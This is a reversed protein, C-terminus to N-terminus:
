HEEHSPIPENPILHAIIIALIGFIIGVITAFPLNLDNGGGLSMLVFNCMQVLIFAWVFTMIYQM